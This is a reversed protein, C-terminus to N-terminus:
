YKDPETDKWSVHLYNYESGSGISYTAKYNRTTDNTLSEVLYKLVDEPWKACWRVLSSEKNGIAENIDKLVTNKYDEIRLVRIDKNDTMNKDGLNPHLPNKIM